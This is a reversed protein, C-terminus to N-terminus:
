EYLRELGHPYRMASAQIGALRHLRAPLIRSGKQM